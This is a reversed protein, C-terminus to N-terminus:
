KKLALAPLKGGGDAPEAQFMAAKETQNLAGYIAMLDKRAAQLWSVSPSTQRTLIRYGAMTHEEAEQYRGQRVLSRGLKVEVIGTYLHDASLAVTYRRVVERFM